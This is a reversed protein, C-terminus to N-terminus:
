IAHHMIREDYTELVRELISSQAFYGHWDGMNDKKYAENKKRNCTIILMELWDRFDNRDKATYIDAM